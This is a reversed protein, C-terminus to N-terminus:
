LGYNLNWVIMQETIMKSISLMRNALESEGEYYYDNVSDMASKQMEVYLEMTLTDENIHDTPFKIVDDIVCIYKLTQVMGSVSTDAM